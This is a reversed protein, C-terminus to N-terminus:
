LSVWVKTTTHRRCERHPFQALTPPESASNSDSLTTYSRLFAINWDPMLPQTSSYFYGSSVLPPILQSDSGFGVSFPSPPPPPPPTLIAGCSGCCLAVCHRSTLM